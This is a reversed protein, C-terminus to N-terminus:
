NKEELLTQVTRWGNKKKNRFDQYIESRSILRLKVSTTRKNQNSKLMLWDKNKLKWCAAYYAALSSM